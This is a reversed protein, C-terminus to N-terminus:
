RWEAQLLRKGEMEPELSSGCSDSFHGHIVYTRVLSLPPTGAGPWDCGQYKVIVCSSFAPFLEVSLCLFFVHTCLCISLQQLDPSDSRVGPKKWKQEAAVSVVFRWRSNTGSKGAGQCVADAHVTHWVPASLVGCLWVKCQFVWSGLMRLAPGVRGRMWTAIEFNSISRWQHTAHNTKILIQKSVMLNILSM